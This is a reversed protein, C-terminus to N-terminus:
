KIRDKQLLQITTLLETNEEQQLKVKEKLELIEKQLSTIYDEWKSPVINEEEMNKNKINFPIKWIASSKPYLFRNISWTLLNM